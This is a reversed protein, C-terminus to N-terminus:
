AEPKENKHQQQQRNRWATKQRRAAALSALGQERQMALLIAQERFCKLFPLTPQLGMQEFCQRIGQLSLDDPLAPMPAPLQQRLRQLEQRIAGRIRPNEQMRALVDEITLPPISAAEGEDKVASPLHQWILQRLRELEAEQLSFQEEELYYEHAEMIMQELEADYMAEQLIEDMTDFDGREFASLYVYLAKERALQEPSLPRQENAM